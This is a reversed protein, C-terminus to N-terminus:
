CEVDDVYFDFSFRSNQNSNQNTNLNYFRMTIGHHHKVTNGGSSSITIPNESLLIAEENSTIFNTEPVSFVINNGDDKTTIQYTFEKEEVQNVKNLTYLDSGDSYRYYLNYTCSSGETLGSTYSVLFDGSSEAAVGKDASSHMNEYLVNLAIEANGTLFLSKIPETQVSMPLEGEDDVMSAFFAFTTGAILVLLIIVFLVTLFVISKNSKM